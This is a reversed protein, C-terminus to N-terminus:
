RYKNKIYFGGKNSGFSGIHAFEKTRKKLKEADLEQGGPVM